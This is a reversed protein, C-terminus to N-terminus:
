GPLRKDVRAGYSVRYQVTEILPVTKAPRKEMTLERSAFKAKRLEPVRFAGMKCWTSPRLKNGFGSSLGKFGKREIDSM